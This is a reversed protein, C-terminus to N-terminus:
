KKRKFLNDLRSKMEKHKKDTEELLILPSILREDKIEAELIMGIALEDIFGDPMNNEHIDLLKDGCEFVAIRKGNQIKEIRDLVLRM